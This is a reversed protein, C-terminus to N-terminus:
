SVIRSGCMGVRHHGQDWGPGCYTCSCVYHVTGTPSVYKVTGEVREAQAPAGATRAPPYEVTIRSGTTYTPAPTQARDWAWTCSPPCSQGPQAGCEDCTGLAQPRQTM